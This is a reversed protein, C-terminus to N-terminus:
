YGDSKELLLEFDARDQFRKKRTRKIDIEYSCVGPGEISREEWRKHGMPTMAVFGGNRACAAVAIGEVTKIECLLRSEKSLEKESLVVLDCGLKSFAVALEPHAFCDFPAMALRAPGYHLMPFPFGDRAGSIGMCIRMPEGEATWMAHTKISEAETLAACIGVGNRKAVSHLTDGATMPLPPLVYLDREGGGTGQIIREVAEAEPYNGDPVICHVRLPAPQPLGYYETLDEVLRLDLYIPAYREPTREKLRERRLGGPLKGNEGLPLDALFVSSQRSSGSFLEVGEPSYVCSVADHCDMVRDMGTRNCAAIFIGNELARARWVECADIGVPPWNAPVWLLDVGKVAMSRAFLGYYTDSCILVGMRGWPTDFTNTQKADGPCAWRTEANIKRYECVRRGDPGIVIAANYYIGTTENREALGIGIHKSYKRAIEALGTVTPGDVTEVYGSIEDRSNFSYGTVPLETNLIVDAGKLAAERNLRFINGRNTEPKGYHVNLHVLAIRLSKKM